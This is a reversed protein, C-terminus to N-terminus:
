KLEMKRSLWFLARGLDARARLTGTRRDIEEAGYNRRPVREFKPVSSACYPLDRVLIAPSNPVYALGAASEVHAIVIDAACFLKMGCRAMRDCFAHDERMIVSPPLRFPADGVAELCERRMMVWHFGCMDIRRPWETIGLPAPLVDGGEARFAMARIFPGRPSFYGCLAAIEKDRAMIEVARRVSGPWWYSDDDAWLVFPYKRATPRRQSVIRRALENRAEVVGLGAVLEFRFPFGDMSNRLCAMTEESPSSRTPMAVVIGPAKPLERMALKAPATKQGIVNMFEV